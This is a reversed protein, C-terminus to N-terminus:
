RIDLDISGVILALKLKGVVVLRGIDFVNIFQRVIGLMHGNGFLWNDISNINLHVVTSGHGPFLYRHLRQESGVRGFIQRRVIQGCELAAIREIGIGPAGDPFLGDVLHLDTPGM